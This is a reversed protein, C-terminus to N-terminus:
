MLQVTTVNTLMQLLDMAIFNVFMTIKFYHSQPVCFLYGLQIHKDCSTSATRPQHCELNWKILKELASIAFAGSHEKSYCVDKVPTVAAYSHHYRNFIFLIHFWYGTNQYTLFVTLIISSTFNIKYAGDRIYDSHVSGTVPWYAQQM